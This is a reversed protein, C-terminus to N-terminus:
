LVAYQAVWDVQVHATQGPDPAVGNTSTEAQLTWRLEHVPVHSTFTRTVGADELTMTVGTPLWEIVATHWDTVAKGTSWTQKGDDFTGPAYTSPVGWHLWGEGIAGRSTESEPFDVEGWQPWSDDAYPWLLPVFKWGPAPASVRYRMVYRGYTQHLYSGDKAPLAAAGEFRNDVPDYGLAFDLVGDHTSLVSAADYRGQWSTDPSGADYVMWRDGYVRGPFQGTPVATTFDDRFTQRWRPLDGVPLVQGSTNSLHRLARGTGGEADYATVTVTHAGTGPLRVRARWHSTGEAVTAPAGDVSVAVRTLDDRVDTATGSVVVTSGVESGVVPALIAVVLPADARATVATHLSGFATLLVASVAARRLGSRRV